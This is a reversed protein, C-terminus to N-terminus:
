QIELGSCSDEEKGYVEVGELILNGYQKGIDYRKIYKGNKTYIVVEFITEDEEQLLDLLNISIDQGVHTVKM